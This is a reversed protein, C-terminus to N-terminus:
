PWRALNLFIDGLQLETMVIKLFSLSAKVAASM